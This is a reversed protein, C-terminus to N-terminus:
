PNLGKNICIQRMEPSSVFGETVQDRTLGGATLAQNWFDVGERDGVRNFLAQYLHPVVDAASLGHIINKFEPSTVFFRTLSVCTVTNSQYASACFQVEGTLPTRKLVDRYLKQIYVIQVPDGQVTSSDIPNTPAIPDQITQEQSQPNRLAAYDVNSEQACNALGLIAVVGITVRIVTKM